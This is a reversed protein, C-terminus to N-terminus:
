NSQNFIISSWYDLLNSLNLACYILTLRFIARRLRIVNVTLANLKSCNLKGFISISLSVTVLHGASFQSWHILNNLILTVYNSACSFFHFSIQHFCILDKLLLKIPKIFVVKYILLDALRHETHTTNHWTALNLAFHPM